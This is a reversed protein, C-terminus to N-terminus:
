TVMLLPLVYVFKLKYYPTGNIKKKVKLMNHQEIMIIKGCKSGVM